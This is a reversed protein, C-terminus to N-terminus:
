SIGKRKVTPSLTPNLAPLPPVKASSQLYVRAKPPPSDTKRTSIAPLTFSPQSELTPPPSKTPSKVNRNVRLYYELDATGAVKTNVFVGPIAKTSVMYHHRAAEEKFKAEMVQYKEQKLEGELIEQQQKQRVLLQEGKQMVGLIYAKRRYYSHVKKRSIYGRWIKQILTANRDFYAMREKREKEKLKKEYDLRTIYGRFVRQINVAADMEKFLKKRVSYGRFLAQIKVCARYERPRAAEAERASTFYADYVENLRKDWLKQFHTM